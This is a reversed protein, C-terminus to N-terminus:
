HSGYRYTCYGCQGVLVQFWYERHSLALEHNMVSWSTITTSSINRSVRLTCELSNTPTPDVDTWAECM